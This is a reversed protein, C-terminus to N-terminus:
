RVHGATARLDVDAHRLRQQQEEVTCELERNSKELRTLRERFADLERALKESRDRYFAVDVAMHGAQVESVVGGPPGADLSTAQRGAVRAAAERGSAAACSRQSIEDRVNAELVRQGDETQLYAMITLFRAFVVFENESIVGTGESDFINTFRQCQEFDLSLNHVSALDRIVPFLESPELTGNNDKDLEAFRRLCDMTFKEGLVENRIRDPLYPTVQSMTHWDNTLMDLLEDVSRSDEMLQLGEAVAKKGETSHLYSMICLFRSFDLFEDARIVGDGHIDFISTFLECQQMDVSCLNAASLQIVVPILESPELAGSQDVDLALFRDHCDKIFMDSTLHEFVEQPLLPIVKSISNRDHVLMSLLTTVMQKGRNIDAKQAVVQGGQTDLYAVVAMFQVLGIFEHEMIVGNRETDFLTVFRRCQDNTLAFPHAASLDVILPILEQADLAGNGDKDLQKFRETCTTLFENSVLDAQMQEPLLPLVEPLRDNQSSIYELLQDIAEKSQSITDDHFAQATLLFSLVVVFQAFFVFEGSRVVGTRDADFTATIRKCTDFDIFVPHAECMKILFPFLETPDLVGNGNRDAAAYAHSCERAFGQSTIDDVLSTPLVRMVNPLLEKDMELLGIQRKLHETDAVHQAAQNVQQGEVTSTLFNMVTMFQAFEVFEDRNIFGNEHVDFVQVFENCKEVNISRKDVRSLSLVVPLLESAELSNSCDVDLADFHDMCDNLFRESVLHEVLWDPLFPVVDNIKDKDKMLICIFDSFNVNERNVVALAEKGEESELYAAILVFQTLIKFEEQEVKGDENEDFIAVFRKAADNDIKSTDATSLEQIVPVLAMPELKGVSETDLEKFRRACEAALEDSVLADQLSTPLFPLVIKINDRTRTLMDLLTEVKTRNIITGRREIKSRRMSARRHKNIIPGAPEDKAKQEVVSKARCIHQELYVWPDEPRSVLLGHLMDQLTRVLDYKNLYQAADQAMQQKEVPLGKAEAAAGLDPVPRQLEEVRRQQLTVKIGEGLDVVMSDKTPDIAVMKAPVIPCFLEINAPLPEIPSSSFRFPQGIKAVPGQRKTDGIKISLVGGDPVNEASTLLIEM